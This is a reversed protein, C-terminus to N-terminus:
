YGRVTVTQTAEALVAKLGTADQPLGTVSMEVTADGGDTSIWRVIVYRLTENPIYTYILTSVERPSGDAGPETSDYDELIKLDNEPPQSSRLSNILKERLASPALTEPLSSEVRVGREKKPDLFKVEGPTKPSRTLQWGRPMDISVTVRPRDQQQVSFTQERYRLGASQFAPLNNPVPTKVFYGPPPSDNGTPYGNTASATTPQTLDGVVYGGAAGIMGLAVVGSALVATKM